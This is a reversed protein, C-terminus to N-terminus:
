KTPHFGGLNWSCAQIDPRGLMPVRFGSASVRGWGPAGNWVSVAIAAIQWWFRWAALM